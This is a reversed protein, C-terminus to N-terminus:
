DANGVPPQKFHCIFVPSSLKKGTVMLQQGVGVPSPVCITSSNSNVSLLATSSFTVTDKGHGPDALGLTVLADGPSAAHEPDITMHRM